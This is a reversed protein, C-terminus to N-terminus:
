GTKGLLHRGETRPFDGDPFNRSPMEAAGATEGATSERVWAASPATIPSSTSPRWSPRRAIAHPASNPVSGSRSTMKVQSSGVAHSRRSCRPKECESSSIARSVQPSALGSAFRQFFSFTVGCRAASNTKRAHLVWTSISTKVTYPVPTNSGKGPGRSDVSLRKMMSGTKVTGNSTATIM